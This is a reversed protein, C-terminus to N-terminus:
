RKEDAAGRARTIQERATFQGFDFLEDNLILTKPEWRRELIDPYPHHRKLEHTYESSMMDFHALLAGLRSNLADELKEIEVEHEALEVLDRHIQKAARQPNDSSAIGRVVRESCTAIRIRTPSFLEIAAGRRNQCADTVLSRIRTLGDPEDLPEPATVDPLGNDAAQKADQHLQNLLDESPIWYTFADFKDRPTGRDGPPVESWSESADGKKDDSSDSWPFM